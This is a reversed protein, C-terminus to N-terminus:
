KLAGQCFTGGLLLVYAATNAAYVPDLTLQIIPEGGSEHVMTWTEEDTSRYIHQGTCAFLMPGAQTQVGTLSFISEQLTPDKFVVSEIFTTRMRSSFRWVKNGSSAFWPRNAAAEAPSWFSVVPNGVAPLDMVKEIKGPKGQWISLSEDSGDILAAHFDFLDTIALGVIRGGKEWPGPVVEWTQGLNDSICLGEELFSAILKKGNPSFSMRGVPQAARVQWHSGGDNSIFLGETFAALVINNQSYEPSVVLNHIDLSPLTASVDVWTVGGDLTKWIGEQPGYMFATRDHAFEPSLVFGVLSRISPIAVPKWDVAQASMWVGQDVLGALIIEDKAVLSIANPIASLCHWTAGQNKSQYIGSEAAALVTTGWFSLANISAAPFNLKVWSEGQDHSRYLGQTETGAYITQDKVFDPSILLSLVPPANEPFQLLKWARAKNYSYYVATETGAFIMEDRTFGPSIALSFVTADLLGFGKLHWTKGNTESFLIGDELSGAIIINDSEYDPSFGISLVMTREMPIQAALWKDGGDKSIFIGKDTGAIILHDVPYAPSVALSMIGIPATPLREWGKLAGAIMKSSRYLGVKTGIFVVYGNDEAVALASITGALPGGLRTWLDSAIKNKIKM